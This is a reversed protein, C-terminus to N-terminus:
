LEIGFTQAQVSATNIVALALLSFVGNRWSMHAGRTEKSAASKCVSGLAPKREKFNSQLLEESQASDVLELSILVQL